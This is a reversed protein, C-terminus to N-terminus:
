ALDNTTICFIDRACCRSPISGTLTRCIGADLVNTRLFHEALTADNCEELHRLIFSWSTMSSSIQGRSWEYAEFSGMM